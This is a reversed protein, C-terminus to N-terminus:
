RAWGSAEGSAKTLGEQLQMRRLVGFLQDLLHLLAAGLSVQDVGAPVAGALADGNLVGAADDVRDQVAGDQLGLRLCDGVKVQLNGGCQGADIRRDKIGAVGICVGGLPFLLGLIQCAAEHLIEHLVGAIVSALGQDGCAGRNLLSNKPLQNLSFHQPLSQRLVSRQTLIENLFIM